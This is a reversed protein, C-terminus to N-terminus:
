VGSKKQLEKSRLQEPQIIVKVSDQAHAVLQFGLGAESLGLRHTIMEGVRVQGDRLLDIAETIDQPSGAYSTTLTVENRWFEYLPIPVDTGQPAPAFFLLTGGREVTRLAQHIATTAGTCVIVLDALRGDNAERLRAPVDESAAIVTDAGFARAMKLRYDNIDTAFVRQTGRVRAMQIHLLGSIGSGIVLVSQKPNLRALRQGRVVCALPEIFSGEEFSLRDPLLFTGLEVNVKPVRIYEAFGGPDFHTQRLMDCVSHHGSLCYRCSNCPVHHSVFVRDGPRYHKVGEGAKVIEGAIEHGLVLPAKKIRYWEMVDTGCIGSAKVRVLMEGPGISPVPMEELRVDRNNYYMAVRM